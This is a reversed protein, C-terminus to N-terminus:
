RLIENRWLKLLFHLLITFNTDMVCRSRLMQFPEIITVLAERSFLMFWHQLSIAAEGVSRLKHGPIQAIYCNQPPQVSTPRVDFSNLTVIFSCVNRKWITSVDHIESWYKHFYSEAFDESLEYAGQIIYRTICLYYSYIRQLSLCHSSNHCFWV